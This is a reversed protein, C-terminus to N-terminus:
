TRIKKQFWRAAFFSPEFPPHSGPLNKRPHSGSHMVIWPAEHDNALIEHPHKQHQTSIQSFVVDRPDLFCVFTPFFTALGHSATLDHHFISNFVWIKTSGKTWVGYIMRFDGCVMRSDCPSFWEVTFVWSVKLHFGNINSIRPSRLLMWVGQRRLSIVWFFGMM